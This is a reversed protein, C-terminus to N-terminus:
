NFNRNRGFDNLSCNPIHQLNSFWFFTTMYLEGPQVCPVAKRKATLVVRTEHTESIWSDDIFDLDSGTTHGWTVTMLVHLNESVHNRHTPANLCYPYNRCSLDDHFGACSCPFGFEGRRTYRKLNLLLVHVESKYQVPFFRSQAPTCLFKHTINKFESLQYKQSCRFSPNNSPCHM